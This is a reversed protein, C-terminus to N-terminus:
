NAGDPGSKAPIRQLKQPLNQLTCNLVGLWWVLPTGSFPPYHWFCKARSPLTLLFFIIGLIGCQPRLSLGSIKLIQVLFTHIGTPKELNKDLLSLKITEILEGFGQWAGARTDNKIQEYLFCFKGVNFMSQPSREYSVSSIFSKVTQSWLHCSVLIGGPVVDVALWTMRVIVTWGSVNIKVLVDYGWKCTGQHSFILLQVNLEVSLWIKGLLPLCTLIAAKNGPLKRTDNRQRVKLLSSWTVGKSFLCFLDNTINIM